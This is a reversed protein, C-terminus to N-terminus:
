VPVAAPVAGPVTLETTYREDVNDSLLGQATWHALRDVIRANAELRISAANNRIDLAEPLPQDLGQEAREHMARHDNMADVPQFGEGAPANTAWHTYLANHDWSCAECRWEEFKNFAKHPAHRNSREIRLADEVIESAFFDHEGSGSCGQSKWVLGHSTYLLAMIRHLRDLDPQRARWQDEVDEQIRRLYRLENLSEQSRM